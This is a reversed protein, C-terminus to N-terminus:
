ATLNDTATAEKDQRSNPPRLPTGSISSAMCTAFSNFALTSTAYVKNKNRPVETINKSGTLGVSRKFEAYPNEKIPSLHALFDGLLLMM